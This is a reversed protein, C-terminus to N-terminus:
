TYRDVKFREIACHENPAIGAKQMAISVQTAVDDVGELDPLLLGRRRRDSVIVGYNAPDLDELTCSEPAHLVDVKVDLGKLESENLPPFRPDHLAAEVANNAVEEALTPATPAITGICGRLEGNRHLSVFAGAREPYEAGGLPDPVLRALPDRVRAEIARRALVVIESEPEGAMGGKAGSSPGPWAAGDEAPQPPVTRGGDGPLSAVAASGVVATLYGVGWPGEYSLVRTPVPDAGAFGGVAIFSRLGCEGAEEELEEDVAALESLSGRVITDHLWSDFEAGEPTYGAPADPTLRHSCDGSAVFAIRRGTREATARVARGLDRNVALPLFSLSLVVLRRKRAPDLFSLPVITGHDLWGSRLRPDESREVVPLGAAELEHLLEAAFEPDGNWDYATPDGFQSLTGTFRASGDILLTDAAAPAHPSMLVITEPNFAELALRATELADLTSQATEAQRGGVEPVLIPPHPAIVGFVEAAM